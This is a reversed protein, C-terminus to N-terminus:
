RNGAALFVIGVLILGVGAFKAKTLPEGFFIRSWLLTFIYGLSIMPYLISLEGKRMGVVFLASSGGYALIGLALPWNRLMARWHKSLRHAGAKLFVAGFSGIFAAVFMLLISEIPTKL